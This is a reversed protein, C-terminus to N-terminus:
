QEKILLNVRKTIYFNQSCMGKGVKFCEELTQCQELSYGYDLKYWCQYETVLEEPM